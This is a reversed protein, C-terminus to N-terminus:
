GQKSVGLESPGAAEGGQGEESLHGPRELLEKADDRVQVNEGRQRPIAELNGKRQGM